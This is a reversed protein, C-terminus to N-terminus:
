PTKEATPKSVFEFSAVGCFRETPSGMDNFAVFCDPYAWSESWATLTRTSGDKMTIDYRKCVHGNCDEQGAVCAVALVFALRM